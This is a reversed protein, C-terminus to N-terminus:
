RQPRKWLGSDRFSDDYARSSYSETQGLPTLISISSRWCSRAPERWSGREATPLSCCTTALLKSISPLSAPWAPTPGTWMTTDIPIWSSLRHSLGTKGGLAQEATKLRAVVQQWDLGEGPAFNLYAKDILGSGQLKVTWEEDSRKAFQTVQYGRLLPYGPWHRHSDRLWHLTWEEALFVKEREYFDRTWTRKPLSSAMWLDAAFFQQALIGVMPCRTTWAEPGAHVEWVPFPEFNAFGDAVGELRINPTGGLDIEFHPESSPLLESYAAQRAREKLDIAPPEGGLWPHRQRIEAYLPGAEPEFGLEALGDCPNQSALVVQRFTKVQALSISTSESVYGDKNREWQIPDHPGNPSSSVFARA